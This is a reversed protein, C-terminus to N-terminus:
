LKCEIDSIFNNFNMNDCIAADFCEEMAHYITPSIWNKNYKPFDKLRTKNRKGRLVPLGNRKRKNNSWHIPNSYFRDRDTKYEGYEKKVVAEFNELEEKLMKEEKHQIYAIM